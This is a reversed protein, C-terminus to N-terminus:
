NKKDRNLGNPALYVGGFAATERTMYFEVYKKWLNQIETDIPRYPGFKSIDSYYLLFFIKNIINKRYLGYKDFLFLTKSNKVYDWCWLLFYIELMLQSSMELFFFNRNWSSSTIFSFLKTSIWGIWYAM